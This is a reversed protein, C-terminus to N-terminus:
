IIEEFLLVAGKNGVLKVTLAEKSTIFNGWVISFKFLFFTVTTYYM